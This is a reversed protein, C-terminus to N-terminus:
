LYFWENLVGLREVITTIKPLYILCVQWLKRDFDAVGRSPTTSLQRLPPSVRVGLRSKPSRQNAM